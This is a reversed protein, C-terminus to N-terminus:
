KRVKVMKGDIYEYKHNLLYDVERGYGSLKGDAAKLYLDELPTALLFEDGRSIAEDLFPKNYIDWFGKPGLKTNLTDTANLLGFGGPNGSFGISKPVNL